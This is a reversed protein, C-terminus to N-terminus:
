FLEDVKDIFDLIFVVFTVVRKVIEVVSDHDHMSTVHDSTHCLIERM